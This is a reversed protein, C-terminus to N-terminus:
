RMLILMFYQEGDKEGHALGLRRYYELSYKRKETSDYKEQTKAMVRSFADDVDERGRIYIEQCVANKRYSVKELYEKLTGEGPISDSIGDAWYGNDMAMKLRHSAIENLRADMLFGAYRDYVQKEDGYWNDERDPYNDFFRERKEENLQNFLEQTEEDYCFVSYAGGGTNPIWRATKLAGDYYFEYLTNDWLLDENNKRGDPFVFYWTGNEQQWTGDQERVTLIGGPESLTKSDSIEPEESVSDKGQGAEITKAWVIEPYLVGSGLLFSVSLILVRCNRRWKNQLERM